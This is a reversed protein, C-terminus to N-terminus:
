RTSSISRLVTDHGFIHRQYYENKRETHALEEKEWDHLRCSAVFENFHAETMKEVDPYSRFPAVIVQAKWYAENLRGWAEPLVEYEKSPNPM